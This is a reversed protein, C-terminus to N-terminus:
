RRQRGSQKSCGLRFSGAGFRGSAGSSGSGMSGGSGGAAGDREQRVQEPGGGGGGGAGQAFANTGFTAMALSLTAGLLITPLNKKM